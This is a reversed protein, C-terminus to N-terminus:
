AGGPAGRDRRANPLLVPFSSRPVREVVSGSQPDRRIDYVTHGNELNHPFREQLESMRPDIVAIRRVAQGALPKETVVESVAEFPFVGVCVSSNVPGHHFYAEEGDERLVRCYEEAAARRSQFDSTNYFVGVQLSWYGEVNNLDWASQASRRTPLLDMSALMFPWVDGTELRLSRILQMDQLHNPRYAPQGPDAGYIRRYRGYCVVTSNNDDYTQVLQANLERVQRLADAYIRARQRRDPGSLTICRITWVEEDAADSRPAFTMTQGTGECGACAALLMAMTSM